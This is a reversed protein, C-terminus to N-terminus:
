LTLKKELSAFCLMKDKMKLKKSRSEIQKTRSKQSSRLDDTQREKSQRDTQRDTQGTTTIENRIM